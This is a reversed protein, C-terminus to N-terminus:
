LPLVQYVIYLNLTGVGQTAGSTRYIYIGVGNYSSTDGNFLQNYIYSLGNTTGQLLGAITTNASYAQIQGTNGFYFGFDGDYATGGYKTTAYVTNICNVYGTQPAPIVLIPNTISNLIQSFSVTISVTKTQALGEQANLSSVLDTLNIKSVLSEINLAM